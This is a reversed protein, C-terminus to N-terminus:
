ARSAQRAARRRAEFHLRQAKLWQRAITRRISLKDAAVITMFREVLEYVVDPRVRKIFPWDLNSSWVFEV